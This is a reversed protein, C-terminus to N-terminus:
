ELNLSCSARAARSAAREALPYNGMVRKEFVAIAADTRKDKPVKTAM